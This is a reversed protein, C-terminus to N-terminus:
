NDNGFGTRVRDKNVQVSLAGQQERDQQRVGHDPDLVSLRPAWVLFTLIWAAGIGQKELRQADVLLVRLGLQFITNAIGYATLIFSRNRHGKARTIEGPSEKDQLGLTHRIRTGQLLLRRGVRSRISCEGTRGSAPLV